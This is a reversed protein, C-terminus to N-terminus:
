GPLEYPGIYESLTLGEHFEIELYPTINMTTDYELSYGSSYFGRITMGNVSVSFLDPDYEEGLKGKALKDFKEKHKLLERARRVLFTVRKLKDTTEWRDNGVVGTNSIIHLKHTDM